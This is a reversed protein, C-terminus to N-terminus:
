WLAFWWGSPHWLAAQLRVSSLLLERYTSRSPAEGVAWARVLEEVRKRDAALAQRLLSPFRSGDGIAGYLRLLTHADAWPDAVLDRWGLEEQAEAAHIALLTVWRTVLALKEYDLTEPTDQSTHYTETRGTTLFLFPRRVYKRLGYYDSRAYRRWPVYPMAEIMPLSALVPEVGDERPLSRVLSVLGPSAEAGLVWLADGLGADRLKPSAGGGMLDLILACYLRENPFPPHRWFWSSGMRDTRIDPPEEADAFLFVVHRRLVPRTRGLADGMTLLLSVSSANDDAGPQVKGDIVGRHDYHAVLVIWDALPRLPCCRGSTQVTGGPPTVPKKMMRM